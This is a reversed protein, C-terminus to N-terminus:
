IVKRAFIPKSLTFVALAIILCAAIQVPAAAFMILYFFGALLTRLNEIPTFVCIIAIIAIDATFGYWRGQAASLTHALLSAVLLFAFQQFLAAVPGYAAWGFVSMPTWIGGYVGSDIVSQTFTYDIITGALATAFSLAAYGMMCGYIFNGRKGGLNMTRRFNRAPIIIAALVPLLLLGWTFSIGINETSDGNLKFVLDIIYQISMAATAIATAIYAASINKLQLKAVKWVNKCM